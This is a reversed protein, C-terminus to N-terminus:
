LLKKVRELDEPVDVGISDYNTEIAQISFDNELARLQELSECLELPSPPLATFRLLADKRYGYIGVHKYYDIDKGRKSDAKNVNFPIAMRSFYLVNNNNDVVIKVVNSNDLEEQVQIKKRATAIDLFKNDKLIQAIKNILSPTILLEDGQINIFIDAEYNKAVEAVRDSGTLHQTSTLVVKCGLKLCSDLIRNDDTAIIVDDLQAKKAKSYVHYVLPYNNILALPKGPFRTSAYRAPIVGVVKLKSKIGQIILDCVERVAGYGGQKNTIYVAAQKVETNANAVAIPLGVLKLAPLDNIDDGIYAVSDTLINLKDVIQNLAKAKDQIGQYLEVIGLQLARHEVAKSRKATLIVCEIGTNMLTKIGFGDHVHFKRTSEGSDDYYISGDTLTGDVDIVLLKIGQFKKYINNQILKVDM